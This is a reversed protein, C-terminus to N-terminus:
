WAQYFLFWLECFNPDPEFVILGEVTPYPNDKCWQISETVAQLKENDTKTM